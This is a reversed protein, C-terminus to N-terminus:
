GEKTWINMLVRNESVRLRREERLTLSWTECGYLIVPLIITKCIKIKAKEMLLCSSLLTQISHYCSNSSNLRKKIEDQIWNQNTVPMGLYKFQSVNEFLRNSINTDWNQGANQHHSLLVYKTKEINIELGVEKHSDILAETNNNIAHVNGGLLNV